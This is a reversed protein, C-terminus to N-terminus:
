ARVDEIREPDIGLYAAIKVAYVSVRYSHNQTYKDKSIFHRLILLIGHYTERLEHIKGEKSEYLSGMAYATVVLIGGWLMLDFWRQGAPSTIQALLGPNLQMVLFVVFISAFATLVAHRRGYFYASFLTPIGYLGLVMRDSAVLYNLIVAIVFVSFVLWLELNAQAVRRITPTELQTWAASARTKSFM